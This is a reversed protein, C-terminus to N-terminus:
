GFLSRVALFVGSFTLMVYIVKRFKAEPIRAHLHEGVFLGVVLSGLLWVSHDITKPTIRGTITYSVVLAATLVVWALALSARFRSKETIERSVVYVLMPGGTAFAGQMVGSALLGFLRKPRPLPPREGPATRKERLEVISLAVVFAGFAFTLLRRNLHELGFLGIPVGALIVPLVRKLMFAIEAHRVHKIFIAIALGCNVPVVRPLIQDIPMFAAGLSLTIVVAGFGLATEVAFAFAVVVVLIYLPDAV